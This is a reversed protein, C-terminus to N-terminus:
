SGPRRLPLTLRRLRNYSVAALVDHSGSAIAEAGSTRSPQSLRRSPGDEVTRERQTFPRYQKSLQRLLSILGRVLHCPLLSCGLEM